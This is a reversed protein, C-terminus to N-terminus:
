EIVVLERPRFRTLEARIRPLFARLTDYDNNPVHVVIVAVPLKKLNQQHRLNRDVTLFVDFREGARVLLAGNAVGDWKMQAVTRCEHEPFEACLVRPVCEDLLLKM